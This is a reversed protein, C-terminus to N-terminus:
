YRVQQPQPQQQHSVVVTTTSTNTTPEPSENPPIQVRLNPRKDTTISHNDFESSPSSIVSPHQQSPPLMEQKTPQVYMPQPPSPYTMSEQQQHHMIVPQQAQPPPPTPTYMM